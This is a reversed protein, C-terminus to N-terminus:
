NSKILSFLNDYNKTIMEEYSLKDWQKIEPAEFVTTKFKNASVDEKLVLNLGQPLGPNDTKLQVEIPKLFAKQFYDQDTLLDQTQILKRRLDEISSKKHSVGVNSM